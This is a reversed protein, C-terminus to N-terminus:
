ESEGAVDNTYGACTIMLLTMDDMAAIQGRFSVLRDLLNELVTGPQLTQQGTLFAALRESGFETETESDMSETIGDTFLLLRDGSNLKMTTTVYSADSVIGLVLGGESLRKIKGDYESLIPPDHGACCYSLTKEVPDLVGFFFTIFKDDPMRESMVRNLSAVTEGANKGMGPAIAHLASQLAAMLLAAATGKGAVDGIAIGYFGGPIPFVDYYDGGVQMSPVSLGALDINEIEPLKGPLFGEQISRAIALEERYRERELETEMLRSNDVAAAVQRAFTGVIASSESMFGFQRNTSAYLIGFTKKRIKLASAIISGPLPSSDGTLRTLSTKPYRNFLLTGGTKELRKLIERHWENSFVAETSNDGTTEWVSFNNGDLKVAWCRDAGSLRRGLTISSHIIRDENFTSYISQGLGDMIRLQNLKRDVLRASPLLFLIRIFAFSSFVLLVTFVCGILTGLALSSITLSGNFYFRLISQSLIMVGLTGALALYKRWRNLYHIWDTRFANIVSFLILLVYFPSISLFIDSSSIESIGRRLLDEMGLSVYLIRLVLTIVLMQFWLLTGKRREVLVLYRLLTIIAISFTVAIILAFIKLPHESEKVTGDSLLISDDRAVNSGAYVTKIFIEATASTVEGVAGLTVGLTGSGDFLGANRIVEGGSFALSDIRNQIENLSSVVPSEDPSFRPGGQFSSGTSETEEQAPHREGNSPQLFVSLGFVALSFLVLLILISTLHLRSILRVIIFYMFLAGLCAATEPLDLKGRVTHLFFIPVFLLITLIAFVIKGSIRNKCGTLSRSRM